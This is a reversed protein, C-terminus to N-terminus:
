SVSVLFLHLFKNSIIFFIHISIWKRPQFYVLDFKIKFEMSINTKILNKQKEIRM